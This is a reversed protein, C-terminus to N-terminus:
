KPENATEPMKPLDAQSAGAVVVRGLRAAAFGAAIAAGAFVAPQRKALDQLKGLLGQLDNSRLTSALDSLEGSGREVLKAIWDQQGDLNGATKKLADAIGEIAGAADDKHDEAASMADDKASSAMAVVQDKADQAVDKAAAGVQGAMSTVKDKADHLAERATNMAQAGAGAFGDGENGGAQSAGGGTRVADATRDNEDTM